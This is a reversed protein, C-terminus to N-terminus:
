REFVVRGGVVTLMVRASTISDASISRLDRDLIVLDALSGRRLTGRRQEAFVGRANASTYARLAEDVSIKQEPVWGGPNRGDITHRTVAAWIGLLPDLPAVVWDSGFMLTAGADILSRFAYTGAIQAPRIRKAAWRGDDAAHYPQMSPLVGLAAIRIIDAPTLHQAHEIRFRRDRPGHATAVSDYIDLLLGNARDGIAHVVVQLGASDASGIWRRLSDERTVFLGSQTPEDLYSDFFLATTSGLSGDVFGKVGALRIWDDGAGLATMTDAVRRWDALMPYLSVRVTQTGAQRARRFAAVESWPASVASVATIGLANAHRMARSLASDAQDPRPAPIVAFVPGMAEDKLVGTLAGGADRVITGGAIERSTSSLGALMLARSNALGMHGDLRQIFVPHDPTVSDIWQRRPLAAGPWREHDWTGGLIWEGPKLTAAHARIRRVFEEPSAADRLDVYGTQFGGDSFHVHDDAFGPVVLGSGAVIVRTRPGIHLAIDASDGVALITDGRVAVARAEVLGSDGTWVTGFIALDASGGGPECAALAICLVLFARM